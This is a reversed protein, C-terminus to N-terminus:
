NTYNIIYVTRFLFLTPYEGEEQNWGGAFNADVYCKIGKEPDQKM